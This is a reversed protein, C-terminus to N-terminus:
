RRPLDAHLRVDRGRGARVGPCRERPARLDGAPNIHAGSRYSAYVGAFVALGWGFTVVIWGGDLAKSKPLSVGAVVGGGLLILIATGLVESLFVDALPVPAAAAALAILM